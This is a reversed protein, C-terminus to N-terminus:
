PLSIEDAELPPQGPGRIRLVFVNTEEVFFVARYALGARTKFLLQRLEVSVAGHEPAYGCILPNLRLRNLGAEFANRWAIAGAPSREEIYSFIHRFDHEARPMIAVRFTM